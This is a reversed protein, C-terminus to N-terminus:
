TPLLAGIWCDVRVGHHALGGRLVGEVVFGAKEAVRRSADNGVVAYWELREVGCQDFGWQAVALVAETVYGRGRAEPACWYGISALADDNPRHFHLGVSALLRGTESACVAFGAARCEDWGSPNTETVYTIADDRTYPSPVTTWRQIEPDQCAAFVADVDGPEVPRLTLRETQLTTRAFQPM